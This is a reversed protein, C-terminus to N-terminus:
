ISVEDKDIKTEEVNIIKNDDIERMFKLSYNKNKNLRMSLYKIKNIFSNIRLIPLNNDPM